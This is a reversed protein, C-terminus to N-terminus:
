SRPRRVRFDDSWRDPDPRYVTILIAVKAAEDYGWVAHVPKARRLHCLVLCSAGRPDTPYDEFVEGNATEAVVDLPGIRDDIAENYAHESVYFADRVIAECVKEFTSIQTM